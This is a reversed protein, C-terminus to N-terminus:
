RTTLQRAPRPRSLGRRDATQKSGSVILDMPSARRDVLSQEVSAISVYRRVMELSTHGLVQQLRLPDGVEKVLYNTAFTHRLLHPHVRPIDASVGARRIMQEVANVTIQNGTSSLFLFPADNTDFQPRSRERWRLLADGCTQGIPVHREKDGKGLVKLFGQELHADAVTLNCLESARLGCDLLTLVICYGREGYPSLREFQGLLRTVEEDRLVPVIKQQIKPPRITKLTNTDTYGDEYLWSSFARLARVFGQIYSSSLPGDKKGVFPNNEYRRTRGQLDAIFARVNEVTVDSLDAGVGLHREFIELKQEYWAVTRLSKNTTRNYSGFAARLQPFPTRSKDM